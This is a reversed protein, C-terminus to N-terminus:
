EIRKINLPNLHRPNYRVVAKKGDRVVAFQSKNINIIQIIQQQKLHIGFEIGLKVQIQPVSLGNGQVLLHILKELIDGIDM